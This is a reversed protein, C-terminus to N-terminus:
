NYKIKLFNLIRETSKGDKYKNFRDRIRIRKEEYENNIVDINRIAEILEKATFVIPGPAIEELNYYLGKLKIFKELDYPFLIIPKNLLSFDFMTSSYDTILIDSILYLEQIDASSDVLKINDYDKINTKVDLMHGKLLLLANTEKLLKDLIMLESKSLPFKFVRSKRWTPAYLIVKKINDPIYYDDKLKNIFVKDKIFLIDNKPYGLNINKKHSLKFASSIINQDKKDRTTTLFYDVYQNYKLNLRFIDGWKNYIYDKEVNVDMKKIPTGHFTLVLTTKPSFKIPLVDIHGHSTFIFKSKRLLRITQFSYIPVVNYGEQKLKIMVEKLKAVWVVKYDTKENLFKFLYKTNDAFRCGGFDGMVILKEDINDKFLKSINRILFPFIINKSFDYFRYKKIFSIKQILKFIFNSIM